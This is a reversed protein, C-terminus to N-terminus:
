TVIIIIIIVIMFMWYIIRRSISSIYFLYNVVVSVQYTFLYIFLYIFLQIFLYIYWYYYISFYIFLCIFLLYIRFLYIFLSILVQFLNTFSDTFLYFYNYYRIYVRVFWLTAFLTSLPLQKITTLELIDVALTSSALTLPTPLSSRYHRKRSASVLARRECADPASTGYSTRAISRPWVAQSVSYRSLNRRLASKVLLQLIDSGNQDM